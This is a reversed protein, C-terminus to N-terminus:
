NEIFGVSNGNKHQLLIGPTADPHSRWVGGRADIFVGDGQHSYTETVGDSWRMTLTFPNQSVSCPMGKSNFYCTGKHEAAIVSTSVSLVAAILTTPLLTRLDLTM